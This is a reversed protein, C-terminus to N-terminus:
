ASRRSPMERLLASLRMPTATPSAHVAGTMVERSVGADAAENGLWQSSVQWVFTQPIEGGESQPAFWTVRSGEPHRHASSTVPSHM